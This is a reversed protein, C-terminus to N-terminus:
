RNDISRRPHPLKCKEKIERKLDVIHETCSTGQLQTGLYTLIMLDSVAVDRGITNAKHNANIADYQKTYYYRITSADPVDRYKKM